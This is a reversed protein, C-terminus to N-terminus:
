MQLWFAETRQETVDTEKKWYSFIEEILLLNIASRLPPIM